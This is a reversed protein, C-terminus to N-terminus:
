AKYCSVLSFPSTYSHIRLPSFHSLRKPTAFVARLKYGPYCQKIFTSIRSKIHLSGLWLFPTNFYLTPKDVTVMRNRGTSSSTRGLFSRIIRDILPMLFSNGKLFRKICSLENHFSFYMSCINYPRFILSRVLNVNYSHPTFSAFDNNISCASFLPFTPRCLFKHSRSTSKALRPTSLEFITPICAIPLPKLRRKAIYIRTRTFM